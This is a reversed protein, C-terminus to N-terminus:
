ENVFLAAKADTAKEDSNETKEEQPEPMDMEIVDAETEVYTKTGDENIVAEDADMASILETSLIGWKKLLNKILTKEAMGAFDTYWYSSYKWMESEPIEGNKMKNYAELSFAQSYKDAHKEM